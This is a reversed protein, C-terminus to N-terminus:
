ASYHLLKYLRGPFEVEIM